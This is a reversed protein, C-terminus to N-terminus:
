AAIELIKPEFELTANYDEDTEARRILKVRGGPLLLLEQCRLRGNYNFGMAHGHAGTNHIVIIDGEDIRPLARQLAFLDNGECLSGGINVIEIETEAIKLTGDPNYVTIHHYARKEDETDHGYMGPRMLDSMCADLGRLEIYKHMRNICRAVLIGHPGTIARGSETYFRPVYGNRQRFQEQLECASSALAAWNFPREGPRYATGFGGGINMFDFTIRLTHSIGEIAGHLMQITETMFQDNLENSVLMTHIGFREAGRAKARAFAEIIREYPVGYKSESPNGIITNSTTRRHGPNLRFSITKPFRKEPVKDILAIDDINLIGDADLALEFEEPTTNNSTFMIDGRGAGVLRALGVEPGSSCDFGMGLRLLGKLIEPNPLAKVAYLNRPNGPVESFLRAIELAGDEIGQWDYLQFPTGFEEVTQALLNPNLRQVFAPSMPM